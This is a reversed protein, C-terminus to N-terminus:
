PLVLKLVASGSVMAFSKPGTRVVAGGKFSAPLPGPLNITAGNGALRVVGGNAAVRELYGNSVRYTNGDPDAGFGTPLAAVTSVTGDTAVKRITDVDRVYLNGDADFGLVTTQVFRAVGAAGDIAPGSYDHAGSYVSSVGDPTMKVITGGPSLFGHGLSIRQEGMYLNGDRDVAIGAIAEVPKSLTTVTGDPTIRRLKGGAQVGQLGNVSAEAVYLNGRPDVAISTPAPLRAQSGVGDADSLTDDYWGAVNALAGTDKWSEIEARSILLVRGGADIRVRNLDPLERALTTVVGAQTVKRLSFWDVGHYYPPLPDGSHILDLVLLDGNAAVALSSALRFGAQNGTGDVATGFVDASNSGAITTVQAGPTIKRIQNRDIVLLNGNQDIGMDTLQAFRAQTGQGDIAADSITTSADGAFVTASGDRAIRFIAYNSMVFLNGTGDVVIRKAVIDRSLLSAHGDAALRYARDLLVLYITGDPAVTVSGPGNSGLGDDPQRKDISIARSSVAGDGTVSRLLWTSAGSADYATDTALLSGAPGGAVDGIQTFRAARGTGDRYENSGAAGALVYLGAPGPDPYLTLSFSKSVGSGTATIRVPTNARVGGAPPLYNVTNGSNASLSGPNGADLSWTLTGANASATATLTIPKDSLSETTGGAISLTAPTQVPPTASSTGGGGGCATLVLLVLSGLFRPLHLRYVPRHRM